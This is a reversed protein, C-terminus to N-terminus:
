QVNPVRDSLLMRKPCCVLLLSQSSPLTLLLSPTCNLHPSFLGGTFVLRLGQRDPRGPLYGRHVHSHDRESVARVAGACRAFCSVDALM